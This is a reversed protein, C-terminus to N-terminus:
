YAHTSDDFNKVTRVKCCCCSNIVYVKHFSFSHVVTSLSLFWSGGGACIKSVCKEKVADLKLQYSFISM